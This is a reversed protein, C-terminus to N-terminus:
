FLFPHLLSGELISTYQYKWVNIESSSGIARRHEIYIGLYGPLPMAGACCEPESEVLHKLQHRIKYLLGLAVEDFM